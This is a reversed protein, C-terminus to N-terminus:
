KAVADKLAKGARFAPLKSAAIKMPEKTRPNIGMKESRNKVEFKGFGVLSVSDGAVLAETIADFVAAVAKESDKKTLEAKLAVASILETKTKKLEEMFHKRGQDMRHIPASLGSQIRRLIGSPIEQVPEM